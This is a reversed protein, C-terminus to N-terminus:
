FDYGNRHREADDQIRDEEAELIQQCIKDIQGQGLTKMDIVKGEFDCICEICVEPHEAPEYYTAPIYKGEVLYTVALDAWETGEATNIEAYIEATYTM